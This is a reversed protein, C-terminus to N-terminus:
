RTVEGYHANTLMDLVDAVAGADPEDAYSVSIDCVPQGDPFGTNALTGPRKASVTNGRNEVSLLDIDPSEESINELQTDSALDEAQLGNRRCFTKVTGVPLKLEKAIAAYGIGMQRLKGIRKKQLDTM